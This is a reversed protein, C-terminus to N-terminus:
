YRGNLEEEEEEDYPFIATDVFNHCYLLANGLEGMAEVMAGSLGGHIPTINHDVEGLEQETVKIFTVANEAARELRRYRLRQEEEFNREREKAM